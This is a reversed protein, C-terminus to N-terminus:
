WNTAVIQSSVIVLATCVVCSSGLYGLMARPSGDVLLRYGLFLWLPLAAAAFAAAGFGIWPEKFHYGTIIAIIGSQPPKTFIPGKVGYQFWAIDLLKIVIPVPVAAVAFRAWLPLTRETPPTATTVLGHYEGGGM